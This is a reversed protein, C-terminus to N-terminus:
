DEAETINREDGDAYVCRPQSVKKWGKSSRKTVKEINGDKIWYITNAYREAIESAHTVIIITKGKKNLNTLFEMIKTETKSDLNGTPEDALIVEPDNSLARAIAVRQQQGGSLQNPYHDM